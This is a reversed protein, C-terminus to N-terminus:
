DYLYNNCSYKACSVGACLEDVSVGVSKDDSPFYKFQSLESACQRLM